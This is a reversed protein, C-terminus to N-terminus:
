SGNLSYIYSMDARYDLVRPWGADALCYSRCDTKEYGDDFTTANVSVDYVRIPIAM